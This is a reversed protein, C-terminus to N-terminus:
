TKVKRRKKVIKANPHQDRFNKIEKKKDNDNKLGNLLKNYELNELEKIYSMDALFHLHTAFIFSCKRKSLTRVGSAVLATADQTETGSCLEDGLIISNENAYKLIVKFKFTTPSIGFPRGGMLKGTSGYSAKSDRRIGATTIATTAKTSLQEM